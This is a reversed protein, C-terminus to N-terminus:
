PHMLALLHLGPQDFMRAQHKVKWGHMTRPHVLDLLPKRNQLAFPQLNGIKRVLLMQRLSQHGKNCFPIFIGMRKLPRRFRHGFHHGFTFAWHGLCCLEVGRKHPSTSLVFADPTASAM